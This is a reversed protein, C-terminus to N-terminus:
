PSLKDKQETKYLRQITIPFGYSPLIFDDKVLSLSGKPLDVPEAEIPPTEPLSAFDNSGFFSPPEAGNAGTEGSIASFGSSFGPPQGPQPLWDELLPNLFAEPTAAEAKNAFGPLISSTILLITLFYTLSKYFLRKKM